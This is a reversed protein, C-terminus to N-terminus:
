AMSEIPAFRTTMSVMSVRNLPRSFSCTSRESNRRSNSHSLPLPTVAMM